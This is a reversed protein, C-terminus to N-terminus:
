GVLTHQWVSVWSQSGLARVSSSVSVSLFSGGPRRMQDCRSSVESKVLVAM